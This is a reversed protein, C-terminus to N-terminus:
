SFLMYIFEPIDKGLELLIKESYLQNKMYDFL